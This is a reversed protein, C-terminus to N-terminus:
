AAAVDQRRAWGAALASGILLGLMNAALDRLDFTRGPIWHQSVEEALVAPFLVLNARQVRVGGLRVFPKRPIVNAFFGLGTALILHLAKDGWPIAHVYTLTSLLGGIDALVVILLITAFYAIGAVRM